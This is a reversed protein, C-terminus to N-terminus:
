GAMREKRQGATEREGKAIKTEKGRTERKVCRKRMWGKKEQRRGKIGRWALSRAETARHPSPKM